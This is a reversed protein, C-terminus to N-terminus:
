SGEPRGSPTPDGIALNLARLAHVWQARFDRITALLPHAKVQGFRDVVTQGARAVEAEAAEALALSRLGSRLIQVGGGDSIRYEQSLADFLRQYRGTLRDAGGVARTRAM